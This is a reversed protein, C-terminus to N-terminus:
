SHLAPMTSGGSWILAGDLAADGLMGEVVIVAESGLPSWCVRPSQVIGDGLRGRVRLTAFRLPIPWVNSIARATGHLLSTAGIHGRGDESVTGVLISEPVRENGDEDVMSSHLNTDAIPM